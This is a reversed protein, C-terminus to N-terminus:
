VGLSKSLVEYVDRSLGPAALLQQMQEQMLTQRPADYRRWQSFANSLRAAVQPNLADLTLVQEALFRYGGGDAAHFQAPNGNCFAGILARVKNPNRISFAPHQTLARVNELAGPLRSTAQLSLWKDVVLPDEQWQEYFAALAEAREEGPTNVLGSLAVMVDTMNNAARFQSVCQARLEPDDLEMLYSLCTNKLARQGIAEADLRYDGQELNAHYTSLLPERLAEALCRLVFRRAEHLAQPDIVAVFEGLYAESPLQLAAAILAKDLSSDLLTKQMAAVYAESLALPEGRQWAGALATIIKVGMQQGAEWRNFPDSDNGMLFYFQADSLDTHLKVPASFGRLLSPVPAEPIGEFEFVQESERLQLVRTGPKIGENGSANGSVNGSAAEGVLRLPLDRGQADLLGIALPMHFPLKHPQGPTAPCHQSVTLRYRQQAADYHQTIDLVPTGAQSYWRRFQSFDADNADEIAAVFDDTTVAQGDHRQFYLDTGRRFGAEGVLHALMRVVEAGKNYVTVTYFNNIEVYSEPRVPHAMPGADERFQHTRLINVDEIRKVGRSGMDASFEEDRYVTFGEKLSLQFWDRCTVRNGSWNHFYEHGIVGEIGQYDTDTATDPRALVYRSNFVNLGKNEMAGMNFDDVAVIMYLDLDYERGYVREDWAMANKLSRMAHECKDTNHHQVYLRLDVWRGSVTQFRDQICALDGAVLAFLYAPKPFPDEWQAWHRGNDLEGSDILNGNSLLVPYRGKDATITTVFRAMVDPRDLYYTIKRFEEAECQTCFNGGSTYLGGLSTNAQPHIRTVIELTFAEPVAPISLREPELVYDGAGLTHGDIKISVLELDRGNLRLPQDGIAAPNRRLQLSSRVRTDAEDLDFHLAVSDILFDPVRYDALHVTRPQAAEAQATKQQM